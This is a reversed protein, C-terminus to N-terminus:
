NLKNFYKTIIQEAKYKPIIGEVFCDIADQMEKPNFVKIRWEDSDTYLIIFAKINNYNDSALAYAALQIAYQKALQTSSVKRKIEVIARELMVDYKGAYKVGDIEAGVVKETGIVDGFKSKVLKFQNDFARIRDDWIEGTQIYYDVDQHLETGLRAAKDLVDKPVDKFMDKTNILRTVSPIEIGEYVYIHRVEDFTINTLRKINM